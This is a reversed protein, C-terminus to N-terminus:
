VGLMTVPVVHIGDSRTYAAGTSTVVILALPQGSRDEDINNALKLLTKAAADISTPNLKIEIAAWTGDPRELIADVELGNSDRYYSVTTDIHQAYVFLDRIVLNEFAIGLFGPDDQVHRISTGLAAFALSPDTLYLKRQSRMAARSRIHPRWAPLQDILMVADLALLYDRVTDDSISEGLQTIDKAITNASLLSGMSRAISTYLARLKRPDRSRSRDTVLLVEGRVTENLYDRVNLMADQLELGLNMPWGGRGIADLVSQLDDNGATAHVPVGNLLASLSVTGSSHGSEFLSMTRMRLRSFRGAGTHRTADDAPRASGTLIFQGKTPTADVEHRVLNWVDPVVQWEDILRPRAGELVLKNPMGAYTVDLIVESEAHHRGTSTKGCAKPGEILVAGVRGLRRVLESDVLRRHYV